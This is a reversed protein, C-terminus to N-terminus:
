AAAEDEIFRVIADWSSLKVVEEDAGNQNWKYDDSYLITTIGKSAVNNAHSVVDDVFHTLGLGVAIDGKEVRKGEHNFHDTLYLNELKLVDGFYTKILWETAEKLAPPRGTIVLLEHGMAKLQRLAEQAGQVPTVSRFAESSLIDIVRQTHETATTLGWPAMDPDYWNEHTLNTGYLENHLKTTYYAARILVDDFDLGIRFHNM